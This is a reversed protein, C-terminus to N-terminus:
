HRQNRLVERETQKLEERQWQHPIRSLYRIVTAGDPTQGSKLPVIEARRALEDYALRASPRLTGPPWRDVCEICAPAREWEDFSLM